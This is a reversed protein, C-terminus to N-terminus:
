VHNWSRRHRISSITTPTVGFEKALLVGSKSSSRIVLVIEETLKACGHESGSSVVNRGKTDRDICNELHTGLFLHYPNVCPEIDCHHCVEIGNPIPGRHLEWSVRHALQMRGNARIYGYRGESSGSGEWIWCGSETIPLFKQYFRDRLSVPNKVWQNM